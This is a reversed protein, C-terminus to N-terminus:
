FDQGFKAESYQGLSLKMVKVLCWCCFISISVSICYIIHVSFKWEKRWFLSLSQCTEPPRMAWKGGWFVRGFYQGFKLKLIEGSSWSWVRSWDKHLIDSWFNLKIVLGWSRFRCCVTALAIRMLLILLLLLRLLNQTPMNVCWPWM